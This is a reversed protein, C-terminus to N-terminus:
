LFRQREPLSEKRPAITQIAKLTAELEALYKRRRNESEEHESLEKKLSAIRDVDYRINSKTIEIRHKLLDPVNQIEESQIQYGETM